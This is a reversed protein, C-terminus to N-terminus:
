IKLEDTGLEPIDHLCEYLMRAIWRCGGENNSEINLPMIPDHLSKRLLFWGELAGSFSVRIGEYNPDIIKIRIPTSSKFSGNASCCSSAYHLGNERIWKETFKLIEDGKPGFNKTHLPMRIEVAELPEKLDAIVSSIKKGEKALEATKIVILTGLYAGDDLFYNDKFAAHGSTEIALPALRGERNLDIAKNIVNRYGRKYRLHQMGLKDQIFATLENSTVSDTVVTSGPYKDVILAAALAVIGNRNIERGQDDVASVRDVDTDFIIGLDCNNEKTTKMISEMAEENEPNPQHNPFHGDPELFQSASVDAGLPALVDKAYFGAAGNGADVAIKLGKLPQDEGLKDTIIGRLHQAYIKTLGIFRTFNRTRGGEYEKLLDPDEARRIIDAIDEKELGGDKTFFKLGNRNYPLHSATVMVAGDANTQPFVTSMFMAPTTTLGCNYLILDYPSLASIFTEILDSGSLRSDRGACVTLESPKKGTKDVLWSLFGKALRDCAETTLNVAEGPVGELAIGRIDSGNQLSRFDYKEAM